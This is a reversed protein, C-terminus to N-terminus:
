PRYPNLLPAHTHQENKHLRCLYGALLIRSLDQDTKKFCVELLRQLGYRVQSNTPVLNRSVSRTHACAPASCRAPKAAATHM